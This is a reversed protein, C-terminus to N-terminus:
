EVMGSELLRSEEPGSEVIKAVDFLQAEATLGARDLAGPNIEFRVRERQRYFNIAVGRRALGPTDGITLVARNALQRLIADVQGAADSGIFLMSCAPIAAPDTVAEVRIPRGDARHNGQELVALQGLMASDGVVVIVFAPPATNPDTPPWRIFRTFNYVFGVKIADVDGKAGPADAYTSAAMLLVLILLWPHPM